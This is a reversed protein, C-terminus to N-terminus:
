LNVKLSFEIDQSIGEEKLVPVALVERSILVNDFNVNKNIVRLVDIEVDAAAAGATTIVDIQNISKLDPSGTPVLSSKLIESIVYGSGIGSFTATYYNSSDTKFRIAVSFNAGTSSTALRFIDSNAYGSLDLSIDGLSSTETGSALLQHFLSDAGIRTNTNSFDSPSGATLWSETASDFTSINKSPYSGFAADDVFRSYLGVEYIDVTLDSPFTAKYIINDTVFDYGTTVIQIRGAELQLSTDTASEASSGIGYAISQAINPVYGALYRRIHQKGENTLM